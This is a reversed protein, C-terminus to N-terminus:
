ARPAFVPKLHGRALARLALRRERFERFSLEQLRFLRRLLETAPLDRKLINCELCCAVINRYSNKGGRSKPIVHDFVRKGNQLRRLCYFCRTRERRVIAARNKPSFYFDLSEVSRGDEARPVVCGPVERPLLVELVYGQFSRDHIRLLGKGLLRRLVCRLTSRSLLTARSLSRASILFQRKGALRSRRVLYFYVARDSCFLARSPVLHDEIDAWLRAADPRPHSHPRKM